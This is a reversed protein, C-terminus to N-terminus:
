QKAATLESKSPEVWDGTRQVYRSGSLLKWVATEVGFDCCKDCQSFHDLYWQRTVELNRDVQNWFEDLNREAAQMAEHNEKTRLKVVPYHFRGNAPSGLKYLEHPKKGEIDKLMNIWPLTLSKIVRGRDDKMYIMLVALDSIVNAILPSVLTKARPEAQLLRGLEDVLNVIGLPTDM